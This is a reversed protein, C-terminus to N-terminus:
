EAYSELIIEIIDKTEDKYEVKPIYHSNLWEDIIYLRKQKLNKMVMVGMKELAHANCEQEFQGKMPIVLLKKQLYLAEAPTEFGAGCIIGASAAMSKIFEKSDTPFFTINKKKDARKYKKSFVHFNVNPFQQFKRQLKEDAFAPLYVTIHEKNKITSERVRQRIIPTYISTDYHQFHFGYSKDSPAFLKLFSYAVPDTFLPKPVNANLVTCQHSLSVCPVGKYKASWASIPEFDNIVLNYNETPLDFISKIFKKSDILQFTKWYNIGGNEGFVFSMGKYQYNIDFPFKITSETGSFLVDVKANKKLYPLIEMARILHGNGTGQIAYLIKM